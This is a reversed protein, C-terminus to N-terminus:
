TNNALKHHLPVDYYHNRTRSVNYWSLPAMSTYNLKGFLSASAHQCEQIPCHPPRCNNWNDVCAHGMLSLAYAKSQKDVADAARISAAFPVPQLAQLLAFIDKREM